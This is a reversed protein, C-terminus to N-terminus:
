SVIGIIWLLHVLYYPLLFININILLMVKLGPTGQGIEQVIDIKVIM